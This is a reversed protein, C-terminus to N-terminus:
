PSFPNVLFLSYLGRQCSCRTQFFTFSVFRLFSVNPQQLPIQYFIFLYFCFFSCVEAIIACLRRQTYIDLAGHHTRTHTHACTYIETGPHVPLHFLSIFYSVPPSSRLHFPPLFMHRELFLSNKSVAHFRPRIEASIYATCNWRSRGSVDTTRGCRQQAPLAASNVQPNVKRWALM